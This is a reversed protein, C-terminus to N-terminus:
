FYSNYSYTDFGDFMDIRCGYVLCNFTWACARSYRMFLIFSKLSVVNLLIRNCADDIARSVWAVFSSVRSVQTLNTKQWSLTKSSNKELCKCWSSTM